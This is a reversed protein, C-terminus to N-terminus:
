VALANLSHEIDNLLVVIRDLLSETELDANVTAIAEIERAMHYIGWLELQAAQQWLESGEEKLAYADPPLADVADHMREIRELAEEIFLQDLVVSREPMVKAPAACDELRKAFHRAREGFSEQELGGPENLCEICATLATITRAPVNEQELKDCVSALAEALRLCDTDGSEMALNFVAFIAPRVNGAEDGHHNRWANSLDKCAEQWRKNLGASFRPVAAKALLPLVSATANLTPALALRTQDFDKDPLDAM